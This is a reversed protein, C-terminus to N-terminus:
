YPRTPESIHILSLNLDAEKLREPASVIEEAGLERNRNSDLLTTIPDTTNRRQATVSSVSFALVLGLTLYGAGRLFFRNQNDMYSIFLGDVQFVM